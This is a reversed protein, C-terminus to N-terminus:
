LEQNDNAFPIGPNREKMLCFQIDCGRWRLNSPRAAVLLITNMYKILLPVSFLALGVFFGKVQRGM